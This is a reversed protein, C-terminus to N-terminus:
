KTSSLQIFEELKKDIGFVCLTLWETLFTGVYFQFEPEMNQEQEVLAQLEERFKDYARL